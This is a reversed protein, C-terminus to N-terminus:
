RMSASSKITAMKGAKAAQWSFAVPGTSILGSSASCRKRMWCISTHRKPTIMAPPRECNRCQKAKRTTSCQLKHKALSAARAPSTSSKRGARSSATTPWNYALAEAARKKRECLIYLRYCLERATEAKAGLKECEAAIKKLAAAGGAALVVNCGAGALVQAALGGFAGTAGTIVATKGRVDFLSLPNKLFDESM